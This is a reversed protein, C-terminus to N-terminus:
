MELEKSTALTPNAQRNIALGARAWRIVEGPRVVGEGIVGLGFGVVGLGLGLVELGLGLGVAGLGL